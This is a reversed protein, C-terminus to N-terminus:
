RIEALGALRVAAGGAQDPAVPQVTTRTPFDTTFQSAYAANMRAFNNLDDLYVNTAVLEALTAGKAALCAKLKSFADATQEEVSGAGNSAVVECFATFTEPTKSAAASVAWRANDPLAAVRVVGPAAAETTYWNAMSLHKRNLGAAKLAAALKAETEQRTQGYVGNLYVRPGPKRRAVVTIEVTTETPMRTVGITIRPPAAAGFAESWIREVTPLASLDSLYLQAGAVDRFALGGAELNARVNALCQRTQAEIGEPMAGAGDRVGQGSVYVYQGVELAPSYPGVPKAVGAPVLVRTQASLAALVTSLLIVLRMM